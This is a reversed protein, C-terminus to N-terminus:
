SSMGVHCEWLGEPSDKPLSLENVVTWELVHICNFRFLLDVLSNKRCCL